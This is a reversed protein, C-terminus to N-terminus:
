QPGSACGYTTCGGNEAWCDAHHPIGCTPCVVREASQAVASQCFPCVMRRGALRSQAQLRLAANARYAAELRPSRPRVDPTAAATALVEVEAEPEGRAAARDRATPPRPPRPRPVMRQRRSWWDQLPLSFLWALGVLSVLGFAGVGVTLWDRRGLWGGVGRIVVVVANLIQLALWIGLFIVCGLNQDTKRPM